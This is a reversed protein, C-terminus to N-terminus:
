SNDKILKNFTRYIQSLDYKLEDLSWEDNTNYRKNFGYQYQGPEEQIYVFQNKVRIPATLQIYYPFTGGAYTCPIETYTNVQDLSANINDIRRQLAKTIKM